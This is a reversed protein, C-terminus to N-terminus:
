PTGMPQAPSQGGSPAQAGMVAPAGTAGAPQSAFNPDTYPDDSGIPSGMGLMRERAMLEKVQQQLLVISGQAGLKALNIEIETNNKMLEIREDHELEMKKMSSEISKQEIIKTKQNLHASLQQIMTQMQQMHAQAQPPIPMQKPDDAIGPPLLKRLREQMDKAGPWDMNGAILDACNQAVNPMAKSFEMMSAAAEQRRTAYSPGTDVTVDYRGQSLSYIVDKGNEDKTQQNLQVVKQTGDEQIIRGARASDYVKPLIEVLCRGTHKISRKVNDFFHFNSIQTQNARAQIAVGAIENSQAGLAGDYVGTTAKIDDAAAMAAQTIAQVAPEISQRQPPPLVQGGATKPIYTLYSHNKTNATEWVGEYGKIQGEAVLFPAKPALAISETAATKWYNLMQQPDKAHRIVSELVRKGKVFLENGYVPIVPVFTGLWVTRDLIENGTITCWKVVPIKTERTQVVRAAIKASAAAQIREEVEASRVSEGTSLLCITEPRMEKYFYEAVRCSDAKVWGPIDNGTAAWDQSASLKSDPYRAKFEEPSLDETIFAWNADSGDPEQSYPDFFVSLPNRIRKIYIEQDFSEPDVFDTLIRWYGIGCRAASEGGTDYATEANSNYEVHRILGEIIDSVEETASSSVPSVKISPRNQRQDNTVQQVQQPLRNVTLCPRNDNARENQVELPWQKGSLFELDSEAAKRMDIEAEEALAFRALATELIEADSTEASEDPADSDDQDGKLQSPEDQSATIDM